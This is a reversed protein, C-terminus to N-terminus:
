ASGRTIIPTNHPPDHFFSPRCSPRNTWFSCPPTWSTPHKLGNRVKRGIACGCPSRSTIATGTLPCPLRLQSPLLAFSNFCARIPGSARAPAGQTFGKGGKFCEPRTSLSRIASRATPCKVFGVVGCPLIPSPILFEAILNQLRIALFTSTASLRNPRKQGDVVDVVVPGGMSGHQAAAVHVCPESGLTEWWSKLNETPVAVPGFEGDTATRM